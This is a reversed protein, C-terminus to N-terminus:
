DQCNHANPVFEGCLGCQKLEDDEAPECGSDMHDREHSYCIVRNCRYCQYLESEPQEKGCLDCIATQENDRNDQM